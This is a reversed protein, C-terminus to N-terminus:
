GAFKINGKGSHNIRDLLKMLEKSKPQPKAEDFLGLQFVGPAYFDGLMVGAKAYAPGTRWLRHLLRQALEIFDRTNDSPSVLHGTLAQSYQPQNVALYSTRIFVSLTRALLGEARLKECPGLPIITM